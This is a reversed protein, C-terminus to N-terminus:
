PDNGLGVCRKRSFIVTINNVLLTVRVIAVVNSVEMKTTRDSLVM